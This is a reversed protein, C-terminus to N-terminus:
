RVIEEFRPQDPLQGDITVVLEEMWRFNHYLNEELLVATESFPTSRGEPAFMVAGNLDLYVTSGSSIAVSQVETPKPLFPIAGLQVPGLVLEEVFVEVAASRDARHPLSHWERHRDGGATDPFILLRREMRQPVLFLILLSALFVALLSGAAWYTRNTM